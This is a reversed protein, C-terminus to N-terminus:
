LTHSHKRSSRCRKIHLCLKWLTEKVQNEYVSPWIYPISDKDLLFEEMKNILNTITLQEEDNSELYECVRLFAEEQDADKPHGVKRKKKPPNLLYKEPIGRGTRFNVCCSHHYICGGAYLDGEFYEIRGKVQVSWDDNRMDCCELISRSFADTKVFSFDDPINGKPNEKVVKCNCFICDTQSDYRGSISRSIRKTAECPTAEQRKKLCKQIYVPNVYIKRCRVHVTTGATVSINDKRQVSVSNISAAGTERIM